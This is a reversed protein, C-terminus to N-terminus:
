SRHPSAIRLAAAGYHPQSPRHGTRWRRRDVLCRALDARLEHEAIFVVAPQRTRRTGVCPVRDPSCTACVVVVLVILLSDRRRAADHSLRSAARRVRSATTCSAAAAAAAAAPTKPVGLVAAAAASAHAVAGIDRLSSARTAVAVLEPARCGLVVGMSGADRGDYRPRSVCLPLTPSYM